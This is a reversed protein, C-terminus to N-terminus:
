KKKFLCHATILAISVSIASTVLGLSYASTFSTKAVLILHNLQDSTINAGIMKTDNSYALLKEVQQFTINPYAQKQKTLFHVIAQQNYGFVIASLLAFGICGGFQRTANLMGSAVGQKAHEVSSIAATSAPSMVLPIGFGICLGGPLLYWYNQWHVLFANLTTGIIVLSLGMIVPRRAGYKDLMNGAIPGMFMVPLTSPLSLLGAMAPQFGLVEQNFLAGFVMNMLVIQLCFFTIASGIFLKNQFINFDILPHKIKKECRYFTATAVVATILLSIIISSLWGLYNGEMLAIVLTTAAIFLSVLGLWDIKASLDNKETNKVASYIIFLAALSFPVNIWFVLRWSMLQTFLGGLFPGTALFISAFGISMGMAKGREHLEFANLTIVTSNPILLAAGIGQLARACVLWALSTASACLISAGLFVAVGMMFLKKHQFLDGLRGAIIVLVAIMLLYIDVVWQLRAATTHFTRQLSPLIVSVATQDIFSMAICISMAALIWWKRNSDTIFNFM